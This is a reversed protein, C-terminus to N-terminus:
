ATPVAQIENYISNFKERFSIDYKVWQKLKRLANMITTHDKGFEDAIDQLIWGRDKLIRYTIARAEIYPVKRCEINQLFEDHPIGLATCVAESIERYLILNSGSTESKKIQKMTKSM